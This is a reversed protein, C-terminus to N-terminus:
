ARRMVVVSVNGVRQRGREDLQDRLAKADEALRHADAQEVGQALGRRGHPLQLPRGAGRLLVDGLMEPHQQAATQHAAALVAVERAVRDGVLAHELQALVDAAAQAALEVLEVRHQRHAGVASGRGRADPQGALGSSGARSGADPRHSAETAVRGRVEAVTSM